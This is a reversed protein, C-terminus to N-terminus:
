SEPGLTDRLDAFVKTLTTAARTGMSPRGRQSKYHRREFAAEVKRGWETRPASRWGAAQCVVEELFGERVM